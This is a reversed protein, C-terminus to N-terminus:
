PWENVPKRCLTINDASCHRNSHSRVATEELGIELLIYLTIVTLLVFSVIGDTCYDRVLEIRWYQLPVKETCRVQLSYSDEELEFPITVSTTDPDLSGQAILLGLNNNGDNRSADVLQFQVEEKGIDEYEFTLNYEGRTLPADFDKLIYHTKEKKPETWATEEDIPGETGYSYGKEYFFCLFFIIIIFILFTSRKKM